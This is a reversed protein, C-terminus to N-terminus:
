TASKYSILIHSVAFLVAFACLPINALTVGCFVFILSPVISLLLARAKGNNNWFVIWCVLYALCLAGNVTLYIILANGFWFNFYTHPINFIMLAICCYRGLQETVAAIRNKYVSTGDDKHKLAWIINPLLIIGVIVLGYYNFWSM